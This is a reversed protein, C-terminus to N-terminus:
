YPYSALVLDRIAAALEAPKKNEETLSQWPIPKHFIITFEKGRAKCLEGPLLVQEINIGIRLRRRWRATNYFRNTNRGVFTVPVIDRRNEIAKAVFSKQWMLDAIRGGKGKRSCLGAPFILMQKDDSAYADNLARSASRAQRGLKNVSLFVKRLPRVNLLLDNVPFRLREDGYIEGLVAILTIGDLGGLPHNSAFILRGDAPINERGKVNVKIQLDDLAARAFEYGEKPYTRELIGNLDDQHVLRELGRVLARPVFRRKAPSLRERVIAQLDIRLPNDDNAM